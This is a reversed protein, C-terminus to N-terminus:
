IERLLVAGPGEVWGAGRGREKEEGDELRGGFRPENSAVVVQWQRGAAPVAFPDGGADQRAAALTVLLLWDGGPESWRVALLAKGVAEARWCERPASQFIPYASRIRLCERYLALVGAHPPQEREAWDLKASHFTAEAQPDPMRAILEAPYQAERSEFERVRHAAIRQGLEGPFDTFFPFPTGAAWEQGMFLMPTYPVLCILMSAARYAEPTIVASLRDGLPRNGVQDHNSICYIFQEPGLGGPDTGRSRKWGPFHQGRYFWGGRLTEVWEDLGGRYNMFHAERQGTLAVRVSHHFDDAWLGDLGWGGADRSRVIAADNREDEAIVFAGRAHAAQAIEAAIPVASADEIAHVADLRLGDFRYEDLWHCANQLFFQRVPASGADDFNLSDGWPNVRSPHFYSDSYMRLVNGVPGLHNYVVDLVVAIGRAHAADILARLDDPTGYCRAPAFLMVGDYGWNWRGAFDGIPMLEITNVGLDALAELRPIAARFTGARTFAGVHLEYIVRGRLPPRQWGESEWRYAAPDIVRSSSEVGQPQFRSAPDPALSADLQYWYLDGARGHEDRGTFFGDADRELSVYRTDEGAAGVVVRVQQHKPAWVRYVVGETTVQAGVPLYATGPAATVPSISWSHM